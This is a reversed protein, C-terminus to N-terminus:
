RGLPRRSLEVLEDEDKIGAMYNAIVRQAMAQRDSEGLDKIDLRDLVKAFMVLEAPGFAGRHNKSQQASM